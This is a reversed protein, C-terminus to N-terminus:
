RPKEAAATAEEESTCIRWWTLKGDSARAVQWVRRHIDIYSGEVSVILPRDGRPHYVAPFRELDKRCPAEAVGRVLVLTEAEV